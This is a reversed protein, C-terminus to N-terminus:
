IIGPRSPKTRDRICMKLAITDNGQQHKLYWGEFYASDKKTGHYYTM